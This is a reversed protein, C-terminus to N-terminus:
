QPLHSLAARVLQDADGPEFFMTSSATLWYTPTFVQVEGAGGVVRFFGTVAPPAGYTPVPQSATAAANLALTLQEPSPQSLAFSMLEGSTQHLYGCAIGNDAVAAAALSGEAPAFGPDTSVNANFDYIDQPTLLEECALTIPTGPVITATPETTPEASPAVSPDTSASASPEPNPSAEATCGALGLVALLALSGVTLVSRSRARGAAASVLPM